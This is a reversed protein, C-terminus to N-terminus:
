IIILYASNTVSFTTNLSLFRHVASSRSEGISKVDTRRQLPMIFIGSQSRSHNSEFHRVVFREEATLVPSTTPSEEVEWFKCLIDNGYAYLVSAHHSVVEKSSPTSGGCVVWGFDTEVAIPSGVPGTRRSNCLISVFMDVGLLIDVQRPEGITQDALPLGTLHTWSLDFPVPIVTLDCHGKPACYSHSSDKESELVYFLDPFPSCLLCPVPWHGLLALCVSM